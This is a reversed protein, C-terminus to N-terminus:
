AVREHVEPFYIKYFFNILYFPLWCLITLIIIKEMASLEFIYGVDFTARLLVMTSLYIIITFIFSIVM